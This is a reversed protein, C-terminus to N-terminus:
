GPWWSRWPRRRRGASRRDGRGQRDERAGLRFLPDERVHRAAAVAGHGHPHRGEPLRLRDVADAAGGDVAHRPRDLDRGARAQRRGPGALLVGLAIMQMTTKWKALQTVHVRVNLEALFERLGSVLIERCLIIVAAAVHAQRHHQRLHADAAHHRGAAQRRDPDLMRGLTSQQTGSARWSLRGALRHHLRRHLGGAGVLPWADGPILFLCLVIAPVALIRLYTLVNPLSVASVPAPTPAVSKM